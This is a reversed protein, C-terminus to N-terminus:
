QNQAAKKQDGALVVTLQDRKVMERFADNVEQLTMRRIKEDRVASESWDSDEDM